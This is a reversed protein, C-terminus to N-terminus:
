GPAHQARDSLERVRHHQRVDGPRRPRGLESHRLAAHARLGPDGPQPGSARAALRRGHKCLAPSEIVPLTNIFLGLMQQSGDLGAPRGAVTVGFTVTQQGTYRQLLLAWVGQVITNLTIRERRAFAKLAATATEDLRTYCREHGSAQHRRSGFADALQTPEDFSKLQDRWFREAAQADQAM